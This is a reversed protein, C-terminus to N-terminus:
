DSIQLAPITHVPNIVTIVLRQAAITMITTTTTLNTTNTGTGTIHILLRRTKLDRIDDAIMLTDERRTIYRRHDCLNSPVPVEVSPTGGVRDVSLHLVWNPYSIKKSPPNLAHKRQQHLQRLHLHIDMAVIRHGVKMMM